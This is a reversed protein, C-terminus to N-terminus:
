CCCCVAFVSLTEFELGDVLGALEKPTSSLLVFVVMVLVGDGGVIM